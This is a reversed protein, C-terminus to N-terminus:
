PEAGTRVPSAAAVPNEPRLPYRKGDVDSEYWWLDGTRQARGYFPTGWVTLLPPQHPKENM